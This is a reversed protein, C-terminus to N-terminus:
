IEFSAFNGSNSRINFVGNEFLLYQGKIGVLTDEIPKLENPKYATKKSPYKLIPYTIAIEDNTLFTNQINGIKEKVMQFIEQRKQALNIKESDMSVMKQWATKDSIFKSIESEIIGADKRSGVDFFEIGFMAGQDVWRNTVPNEKSIGVKLGSTNSLYVKHPKFCNSKGWEPARCTGLHFHCTEPKLICLDNKALKMFCPYCNGQQFSKSTIRGCEICRIEGSFKIVIKKGLLSNLSFESRSIQAPTKAPEKSKLDDNSYNALCLFYKVPNLNEYEMMRLYGSIM